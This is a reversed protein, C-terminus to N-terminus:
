LQPTRGLSFPSDPRLVFFCYCLFDPESLDALRIKKSRGLSESASAATLMSTKDPSGSPVRRFCSSQLKQLIRPCDSGVSRCWLLLLRPPHAWQRWSRM